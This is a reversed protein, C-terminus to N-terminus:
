QQIVLAKSNFGSSSKTRILYVGNRINRLDINKEESLNLDVFILRGFSDYIEISYKENNNLEVKFIGVNPNPAIIIENIYNSLLNNREFKRSQTTDCDPVVIYQELTDSNGSTDTVILMSHYTGPFNYYVTPTSSNSTQGNGFDWYYQFLSNTDNEYVGEIKVSDTWCMLTDYLPPSESSHFSTNNSAKFAFDYNGSPFNPAIMGYLNSWNQVNYLFGGSNRTSYWEIEYKKLIKAHTIAIKGNYSNPSTADDDNQDSSYAFFYHGNNDYCNWALNGMWNSYNHAWGMIKSKDGNRIQFVECDSNRMIISPKEWKSPFTFNNSEFDINYFFSRLAPFNDQKFSNNFNQWWNLGTGFTSMFSSAWMVNHFEVDNCGEIQNPDFDDVGPTNRQTAMFGTEGFISPKDYDILLGKYGNNPIPFTENMVKFRGQNEDRMNGYSHASTVDFLINSFPNLTSSQRDAYSTSILHNTEGLQNKIYGALALNFYYSDTSHSPFSNTTGWGDAESLLEIIGLSTSYGWRAIIYRYRRKIHELAINSTLVDYPEQIGLDIKYPNYDWLFNTQQYNPSLPDYKVYNFQFELNLLMYIKRSECLEFLKDLEFAQNQRNQSSGDYSTYKGYHGAKEWELGFSYPTMLIRFFNGQSNALNNVESLYEVFPEPRFNNSNWTSNIWNLNQGIAFFSESTESFKLHRKHHGVQLYGKNASPICEFEICDVDIPPFKNTHSIVKIDCKWKGLDNPAFRIRFNYENIIPNWSYNHEVDQIREFDEMYFGYIIRNLSGSPSIFTAIIDIDEPNFPNVNTSNAGSNFYDSVLNDISTPLDLGLELKEYKGVQTTPTTIPSLVVVQFNPNELQAKFKGSGSLASVSFGPKLHICNGATYNVQATGSIAVTNSPINPSIICNHSCYNHIGSTLTKNEVIITPAVQSYTIEALSFCFVLSILKIKLKM